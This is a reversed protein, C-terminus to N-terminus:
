QGSAVSDNDTAQATVTVTQRLFTNEGPELFAVQPPTVDESFELAGIDFGAVGNGDGDQPRAADQSYDAEFIPNFLINLGM